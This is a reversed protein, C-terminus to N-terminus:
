RLGSVNVVGKLSPHYKCSYAYVGPQIFTFTFRQGAPIDGSDIRGDDTTVTHTETDDNIWTVANGSVVTVNSNSFGSSTIHIVSSDMVPSSDEKKCGIVFSCLITLLATIFIINKKM